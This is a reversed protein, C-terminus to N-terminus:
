VRWPTKELSWWMGFSQQKRCFIFTVCVSDHGNYFWSFCILYKILFHEPSAYNVNDNGSEFMKEQKFSNSIFDNTPNSLSGTVIVLVCDMILISCHSCFLTTLTVFTKRRYFNYSTGYYILSVWKAHEYYGM